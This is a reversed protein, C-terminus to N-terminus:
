RSGGRHDHNFPWATVIEHTCEGSQLDLRRAKLMDNLHVPRGSVGSFEIITKLFYFAACNIEIGNTRYHNVYKRQQNAFMDVLDIWDTRAKSNANLSRWKEVHSFHSPLGSNKIFIGDIWYKDGIFYSTLAARQGSDDLFGYMREISTSDYNVLFIAFLRNERDLENPESMSSLDGISVNLVGDRSLYEIWSSVDEKVDTYIHVRSFPAEPNKLATVDLIIGAQDRLFEVFEDGVVNEAEAMTILSRESIYTRNRPKLSALLKLVSRSSIKSTSADAILLHFADMEIIDYDRVFYTKNM